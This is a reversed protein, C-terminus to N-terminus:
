PPTQWDNGLGNPLVPTQQANLAMAQRQEDVLALVSVELGREVRSTCGSWFRDLSYTKKGSKHVFTADMALICTKGLSKSALQMNLAEFPFSKQANRRITKENCDAYRSLNMYNAKGRLCLMTSFIKAMFARRSKSLGPLSAMKQHLSEM